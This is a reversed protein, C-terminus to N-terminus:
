MFSLTVRAEAEAELAADHIEGADGVDAVHERERARDVVAIQLKGQIHLLDPLAGAPSKRNMRM